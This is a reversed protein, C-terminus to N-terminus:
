THNDMYQCRLAIYLALNDLIIDFNPIRFQEGDVHTLNFLDVSSSELNPAQHGAEDLDLSVRGENIATLLNVIENKKLIPEVHSGM